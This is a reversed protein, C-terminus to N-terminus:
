NRPVVTGDVKRKWKTGKSGPLRTKPARAGKHKAAVRNSKAITAKDQKTKQRHCAVHAPAINEDTDDRTLDFPIIHELEWSERTGDIPEGCIHCIGGHAEFIAARQLTTRKRRSM